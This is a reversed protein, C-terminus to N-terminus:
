SGGSKLIMHKKKERTTAPAEINKGFTKGNFDGRVREHKKGGWEEQVLDSPGFCNVAGLWAPSKETSPGERKEKRWKGDRQV